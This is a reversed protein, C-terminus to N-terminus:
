SLCLIEQNPQPSAKARASIIGIVIIGVVSVIIGTKFNFEVLAFHYLLGNPYM